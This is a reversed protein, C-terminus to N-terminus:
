LFFFICEQAKAKMVSKALMAGETWQLRCIGLFGVLRLQKRNGRRAGSEGKRWPERFM